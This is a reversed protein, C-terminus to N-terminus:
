LIVIGGQAPLRGARLEGLVARTGLPYRAAVLTAFERLVRRNRRTAAVLMIVREVDDDAMKLAIRRDTAQLDHLATEAEVKVSDVGNSLEADWARRDGPIPLGVETRMTLSSHLQAQLRALLRAHAADRLPPDRRTRGRM